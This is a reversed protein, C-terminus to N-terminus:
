TGEMLDEGTFGTRWSVSFFMSIRTRNQNGGTTVRSPRQAPTSKGSSAWGDTDSVIQPRIRVSWYRQSSSIFLRFHFLPHLRLRIKRIMYKLLNRSPILQNLFQHLEILYLGDFISKVYSLLWGNNLM